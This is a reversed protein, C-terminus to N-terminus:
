FGRKYLLAKKTEEDQPAFKEIIARKTKEFDVEGSQILEDTIAKIKSVSYGKSYLKRTYKKPGSLNSNLELSILRRLQKEEDIYSLEVMRKTVAEITKKPFGARFLKNMLQKESNDGYSLIGLARKEALNYEKYTNLMYFAKESLEENVEPSGIARYQSESVTFFEDNRENMVCLILYGKANSERISKLKM